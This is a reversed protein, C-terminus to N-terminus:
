EKLEAYVEKIISWVKKPNDSQVLSGECARYAWTFVSDVGSKGIIRGAERVEEEKGAPILFGQIWLQSRKGYRKALKVTEESAKSVFNIDKKAVSWYPDTGFVDLEKISCVKEWSAGQEEKTFFPMLCVTVSKKSDVEKVLKSSQELFDLISKEKFEFVDENAKEPMDYGYQEKFLERCSPCVCSYIERTGTIIYHPEDWFFGDFVEEKVLKSVADFFYNRFVETNFCAGVFPFPFEKNFVQRYNVNDQLFVSPAEGGFVKGFAWLNVYVNLGLDKAIKGIKVVNSYWIQYDYESVALLVANCNHDIIELFDEEARDPYHFGYYAVGLEKVM